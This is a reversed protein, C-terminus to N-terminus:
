IEFFITQQAPVTIKISMSDELKRKGTIIYLNRSLTCTSEVFEMKGDTFSENYINLVGAEKCYIIKIM